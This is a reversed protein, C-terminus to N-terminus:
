ACREATLRDRVFIDTQNNTDGMVLNSAYSAFAVFRGDASSVVENTGNDAQTGDSSISVRTTQAYATTFCSLAALIAFVVRHCRVM